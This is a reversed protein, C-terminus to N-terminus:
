LGLDDWLDDENILQNIEQNEEDLYVLYKNDHEIIAMAIPLINEYIYQDQYEVTLVRIIPYITRSALIIPKGKLINKQYSIDPSEFKSDINLEEMISFITENDIEDMLSFLKDKDLEDLISFISKMIIDNM